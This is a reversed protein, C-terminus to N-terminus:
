IRWIIEYFFLVLSIKWIKRTARSMVFIVTKLIILWCVRRKKKVLFLSFSFFIIIIICKDNGYPSLM